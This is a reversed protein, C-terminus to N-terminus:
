ICTFMYMSNYMYYLSIYIYAIHIYIYIYMYVYQVHNKSQDWIRGYNVLASWQSLLGSRSPHEHEQMRWRFWWWSFSLFGRHNVLHAGAGVALEEVWLLQNRSLFVGGVIKGPPMQATCTHMDNEQNSLNMNSFYRISVVFMLANAFIHAVDVLKNWSWKKTANGKMRKSQEVVFWANCWRCPSQQSPAPDYEYVQLYSYQDIAALLTRNKNENRIIFCKKPHQHYTQIINFSKSNPWSGFCHLMAM